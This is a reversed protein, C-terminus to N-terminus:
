MRQEREAMSFPLEGFFSGPGLTALEVGNRSARASGEVIVFFELGPEGRKM